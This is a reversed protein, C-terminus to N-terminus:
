GFAHADFVVSGDQRVESVYCDYNSTHGVGGCGCYCPIQRLLDPNALAFRYAERVTNPAAQFEPPLDSVPALKIAEREKSGCGVLMVMLFVLMPLLWRKM